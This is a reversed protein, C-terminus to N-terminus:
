CPEDSNCLVVNFIGNKGDDPEVFTGDPQLGYIGDRDFRLSIVMEAPAAMRFDLIETVEGYDVGNVAFRQGVRAIVRTYGSPSSALLLRRSNASVSEDRAQFAAWGQRSLKLRPAPNVTAVDLEVASADPLGRVPDGEVFYRRASTSTGDNTWLILADKQTINDAKILFAVTDDDGVDFSNGGGIFDRVQQVSGDELVLATDKRAIRTFDASDLSDTYLGVTANGAVNRQAMYFVEGNDAIRVSASGLNNIFDRASGGSERVAEIYSGDVGRVYIGSNRVDLPRTGDANLLSLGFALQGAPNQDYLKSGFGNPVLNDPLATEFARLSQAKQGDGTITWFAGGASYVSDDSAEFADTLFGPKFTVGGNGDISVSDFIRNTEVNETFYIDGADLTPFTTGGRGPKGERALRETTGATNRLLVEDNLGNVSGEEESVEESSEEERFLVGTFIIQGNDAIAVDFFADYSSPGTGDVQVLEFGNGASYSFIGDRLGGSSAVLNAVGHIAVTGTQNTDFRLPTGILDNFVAGDGLGPAADGSVVIATIGSDLSDLTVEDSDTCGASNCAAVIYRAGNRETLSINNVFETANLDSCIQSFGSVGDPDEFVQYYTADAVSQWSFKLTWDDYSPTVAPAAPAQAVTGGGGGGTGNDGNDDEAGGSEDGGTTNESGPDDSSSSESSSSGGCGALAFFFAAITLFKVVFSSIPKM